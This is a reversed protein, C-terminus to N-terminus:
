EVAYLKEHYRICHSINFKYKGVQEANGLTCSYDSGIQTRVFNMCRQGYQSYFSDDEPIDIPLCYPHLYEPDLPLGSTANCCLPAM